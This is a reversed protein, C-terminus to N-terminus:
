QFNFTFRIIVFGKEKKKCLAERVYIVGVQKEIKYSDADSSIRLFPFSNM